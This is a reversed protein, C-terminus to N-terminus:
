EHQGLFGLVPELGREEERAFGGRTRHEAGLDGPALAHRLAEEVLDQELQLAVPDDVRAAALAAPIQEAARRVVDAEAFDHPNEVTWECRNRADALSRI